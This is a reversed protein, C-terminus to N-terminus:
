SVRSALMKFYDSPLVVRPSEGAEAVAELGRKNSGANFRGGFYPDFESIGLRHLSVGSEVGSGLRLRTITMSPIKESPCGIVLVRADPFHSLFLDSDLYRDCELLVVGNREPHGGRQAIQSVAIRKSQLEEVHDRVRQSVPEGKLFASLAGVLLSLDRTTSCAQLIDALENPTGKHDADVVAKEFREHPPLVGTLIMASLVSDCDTHNIVVLDGDDPGLAGRQRVWQCALVGSSVHREWRPDPAHHDINVIREGVQYGSDCSLLRGQEAGQVYFDVAFIRRADPFRRELDQATPMNAAPILRIPARSFREELQEGVDGWDTHHPASAGASGSTKRASTVVTSM